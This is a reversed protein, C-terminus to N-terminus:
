GDMHWLPLESAEQRTLDVQVSESTGSLVREVPVIWYGKEDPLRSLLIQEVPEGYGKVVLAAVKGIGLGECSLIAMGRRIEVPAGRPAVFGCVMLKCSEPDRGAAQDQYDRSEDM